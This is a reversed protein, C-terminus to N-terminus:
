KNVSQVSSAFDRILIDGLSREVWTVTYPPFNRHAFEDSKKQPFSRTVEIYTYNDTTQYILEVQFLLDFGRKLDLNQSRLKSWNTNVSILLTKEKFGTHNLSNKSLSIVGEFKM